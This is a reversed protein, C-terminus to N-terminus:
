EEEDFEREEGETEQPEIDDIDYFVERPKAGDAPGIIGRDELADLLRAARAYGIRLKRQLFSASAKRHELVLQKAEEYVPDSEGEGEQASGSFHEMKSLEAEVSAKLGDEEQNVNDKNKKTIFSIVKEIETGSIYASQIRKPKSVEASVFLSDGRGLLKEAGATDLITRSDVQSAVQCAIRATINAKILGTIVEVSPRQTALILHIGVARAKQALKVIGAEVERGKSAMLDALEDVILVIYPLTKNEVEAGEAEAQIRQNYEDINRAGIKSLIEFRNEMEEGLWKLIFLTKGVDHIVPCLLHPLNNYASFEVRKPDILVFRLRHFSNRYLLSTIIGGLTITKGSGTSGAVLLHPMKALDTFAPNGVVDKGLAFNLTSGVDQFEPSSFLDRLRVMARAKNPVEIGVLSKGPIPAEIRIPHAALALSLNNNLATIKSLKVGEAPKFTYQTVTPGIHTESMEVPIGFNDLTKKIIERNLEIDGAQPKGKESALLDLPPFNWSTELLGKEEEKDGPETKEEKKEETNEQPEEPKEQKAEPQPRLEEKPKDPEDEIESVKFKPAFVKQFFHKQKEAVAPEEQKKEKEIEPEEQGKERPKYLFHWFILGGIIILSIFFVQTVWFGFVRILPQATVNGLWGGAGSAWLNFEVVARRTEMGSLFGASGLLLLLSAFAVSWRSKEKSLFFSLGLLLLILPLIFVAQGALFKFFRMFGHGAVGALDFFALVVFITLLFTLIGYAWPKVPEPILVKRERERDRRFIRFLFFPKKNFNNQSSRKKKKRRPM